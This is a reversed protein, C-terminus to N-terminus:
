RRPRVRAARATPRASQRRIAEALSQPALSTDWVWGPAQTVAGPVLGGEADVTPPAQVAPRVTPLMQYSVLQRAGAREAKKYAQAMLSARQQDNLKGGKFYGMETLYLPAAKGQATQLKGQRKYRGLTAQLDPLNNIDWANREAAQQGTVWADYPHYALGATRIPKKGGLVGRLFDRANAAGVMEGLLVQATPDASKIGAYGARYIGRYQRGATRAAAPSATTDVTGQFANLNQENGVSYRGVRGKFHKAVENAFGQWQRPDNHAASLTQDLTPSYAPTGMITLQPHIGAARLANVEQDIKGYGEARVKGYIVNIRADKAGAAKAAAILANANPGQLATDDQFALSPKRAM